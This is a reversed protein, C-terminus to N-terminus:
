TASQIARSARRMASRMGIRSANIAAIGNGPSADISTSSTPPPEPTTLSATSSANGAARSVSAPNRRAWAPALSLSIRLGHGRSGSRAIRDAAIRDPRLLDAPREVEDYGAFRDMMKFVKRGHRGAVLGHVPQQLRAAAEEVVVKEVVEAAHRQMLMRHLDRAELGGIGTQCLCGVATILATTHPEIGTLRLLPTSIQYSTFPSPGAITSTWALGNSWSRQIYWLACKEVQNLTIPISM